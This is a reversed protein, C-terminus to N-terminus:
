FAPDAPTNSNNNRENIPYPYFNRKRETLPRGFRRMDELKTGSHWLEISRNRYVEDLLAAQTMAGTYGTLGAGVGMADASPAQTLLVDIIAKAGALDPTAARLLAEAKILRMEDPLFIPIARTATNWFGNLRYRPLITTNISTYFSVRQDNLAPQLGAPLGLTSDIPQYVNNTSTAFAFVPNPTAADFNMWSTKTLNVADAAVAAEAYKGAYLLYRAKLAMLTNNLDGIGAPLDSVFASSIANASTAALARDIAAVAKNFGQVRDIFAVNSPGITDPVKEWCMSMSGISLAKWLTAYAILGSAYGKDALNNAGKIIGDAEYICKSASSWLNNLLLNTNDVANGGNFFQSESLNGPNLLITERTVLGNADILPAHVNLSYLRQTGIAVAMLGRASGNIQDPNAAGPNVYDKKCATLASAMIALAAVSRIIRIKMM